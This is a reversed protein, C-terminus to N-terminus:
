PLGERDRLFEGSSVPTSLWPCLCLTCIIQSGGRQKIDAHIRAFTRACTRSGEVCVKAM